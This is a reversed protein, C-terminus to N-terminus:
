VPMGHEIHALVTKVENMGVRTDMRDLPSAGGLLAHPACLWERASEASDFAQRAFAVVEALGVLRDSEHPTLTGATRRRRLTRPSVGLLLALRADSVGLHSQLHDLATIPLGARVAAVPDPRLEPLLSRASPSM